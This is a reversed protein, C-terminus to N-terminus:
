GTPKYVAKHISGGQLLKKLFGVGKKPAFFLVDRSLAFDDGHPPVESLICASFSHVEPSQLIPLCPVDGVPIPHEFM